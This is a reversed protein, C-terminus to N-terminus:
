CSIERTGGKKESCDYCLPIFEGRTIPTKCLHVMDMSDCLCCTYNNREPLAQTPTHTEERKEALAHRRTSAAKHWPCFANAHKTTRVCEPWQCTTQEETLAKTKSMRKKM